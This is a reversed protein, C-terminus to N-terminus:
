RKYEKVNRKLSLSTIIVAISVKVMYYISRIATISSRGGLRIGMVVPMESIRLGNCAANVISEPEPYDRPYDEAFLQIANRSYARFGSTPDTANIGTLLRILHSFCRIGLRRASTSRFGENKLFRSGICLDAGKVLEDTLVRIFAPDHQGDGDVQVAADYNNYKAYIMGSQVAGGIGLNVPLDIVDARSQRAIASTDDDSSDNVVLIDYGPCESRVKAILPALNGAENHAPIVVLVRM